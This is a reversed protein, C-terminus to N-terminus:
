VNATMVRGGKDPLGRMKDMMQAKLQMATEALATNRSKFLLVGILAIAYGILETPTLIKNWLFTSLLVIIVDKVVGSICLILASANGILYVVAVNLGFAVFANLFLTQLGVAYIADLTLSRGEFLYCAIGNMLACIPAFYYLSCLPNMKKKTTSNLLKEVLLLRLAEATVAAVQLVVGVFVLEVEGYSAIVTGVVIIVLYGMTQTNATTGNIAWDLFLVIVPTIAKLMQIFAVSLYLYAYNSSVLAVSFVLGIPVIGRCYTSRTMEINDLDDLLHTWRRLCRTAMTAFVLHWFTLFIPFKFELYTFIYKNFLIVGTSFVIWTCIYPAPNRGDYNGTVGM